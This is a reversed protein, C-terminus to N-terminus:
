FIKKPNGAVFDKLYFPEFYATDEFQCTMFKDYSLMSMGKASIMTDTDLIANPHALLDRCKKVGDGVFYVKNEELYTQRFSHDVTIAETNEVSNYESDYLASYVEMRRADMMSCIYTAEKTEIACALSQLTNIAILPINLGYCLGKATSVGIRLGTYSGPGESIAIANLEKPNLNADGLAKSIHSLLKENHKFSEDHSESCAIVNGNESIAVSCSKSSTEINLIVSM